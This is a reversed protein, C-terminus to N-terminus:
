IAKLYEEEKYTFYDRIMPDIWTEDPTDDSHLDQEIMGVTLVGTEKLYGVISDSGSRRYDDLLQMERDEDNVIVSLLVANKIDNDSQGRKTNM